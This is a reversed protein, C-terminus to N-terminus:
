SQNEKAPTGPALDEFTYAELGGVIGAADHRGLHVLPQGCIEKFESSVIVQCGLLKRFGELRVVENAASGTVSFNLRRQTGINGYMVQGYHLSIGFDVPPIGASAREGNRRAVRGMADRAAGMAARAMDSKPRTENDIPFIAFVADGIYLLVDGGHEMVADATDSYYNNLLELYDDQSLEAALRTSGRLDCYWLVCDILRGDGREITGDLVMEGSLAGLYTDLLNRSLEYTSRSRVAVALTKTLANLREIEFATFGGARRTSISISVGGFAAAIDQWVTRNSDGYSYFYALYDTVGEKRFREYIPFEPEVDGTELHARLTPESKATLYFFPANRFEETQFMERPVDARRVLDTKAEWFVDMAGIIPHLLMGGVALRSVPIGGAVLKQGLGKVTDTLEGNTLTQELIWDSISDFLPSYPQPSIESMDLVAM